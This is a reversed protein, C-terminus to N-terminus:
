LVEDGEPGSGLFGDRTLFSKKTLDCSACGTLQDLPGQECFYYVVTPGNSSVSFRTDRNLFQSSDHGGWFRKIKIWSNSSIQM